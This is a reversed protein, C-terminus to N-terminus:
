YWGFDIRFDPRPVHRARDQAARIEGALGALLEDATMERGEMEDVYVISHVIWASRNGMHELILMPFPDEEDHYLALASPSILAWGRRGAHGLIHADLQEIHVDFPECVRRVPEIHSAEARLFKKQFKSLITQRTSMRMEPEELGEAPLSQREDFTVYIGVERRARQTGVGDETMLTMDESIGVMGPFVDDFTMEKVRKIM